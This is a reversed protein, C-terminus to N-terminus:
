LHESPAAPEAILPRRVAAEGHAMRRAVLLVATAGLALAGCLIWAQRYSGHEALFGVLLPGVLAGAFFGGMQIGIAASTARPNNSIVALSLPTQWGWSLGGAIVAGAVVPAPTGVAMLAYGLAGVAMLGGARVLGDGPRRDGLVGFGLRSGIALLGTLALLLGAATNTFGISVAFVVLFSRMGIGAASAAAASLAIVHISRPRRRRRGDARDAGQRPAFRLEQRLLPVLCLLSIAAAAVFAAQWGFPEAVLPLALGGCFAAMQPASSLIGFASGQRRLAINGALLSALTPSGIGAGLGNVAMLAIMAQASSAVTGMALASFAVLTSAAIVGRRPGIWDMARGSVPSLVASLGFSVGTALGLEADSFPFDERITVALSAILYQPLVSALLLATAAAILTRDRSTRAEAAPVSM